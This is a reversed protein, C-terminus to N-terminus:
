FMWTGIEDEVATNAILKLVTQELFQLYPLQTSAPLWICTLPEKGAPTDPLTRFELGNQKMFKQNFQQKPLNVVLGQIQPGTTFSGVFPSWAVPRVYVNDNINFRRGYYGKQYQIYEEETKTRFKDKEVKKNLEQLNAFIQQALNRKVFDKLYGEFTM